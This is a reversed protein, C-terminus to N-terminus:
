SGAIDPETKSVVIVSTIPKIAYITRGTKCSFIGQKEHLFLQLWIDPIKIPFRSRGTGQHFVSVETRIMKVAEGIPSGQGLCTELLATKGKM